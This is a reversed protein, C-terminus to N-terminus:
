KKISQVVIDGLYKALQVAGWWIMLWFVVDGWLVPEKLRKNM